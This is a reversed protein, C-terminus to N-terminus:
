KKFSDTELVQLVTLKRLVKRLTRRILYRKNVDGYLKEAAKRLSGEKVLVNLLGKDKDSLKLSEYRLAIRAIDIPSLGLYPSRRDLQDFRQIVNFRIVTVMDSPSLNHYTEILAEKLAKLNRFGDLKADENTLESFRKYTVNEIRAKCIAKGGSHIIVEKSRPKVLGLRITARKKGSLIAEAYEGKVMLHKGIYSIRTKKSM